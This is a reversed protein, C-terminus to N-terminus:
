GELLKKIGDLVRKWNQESHNAEEQTANNDQTITLRTGDGETSLEDQLNEEPMIKIEHVYLGPRYSSEM